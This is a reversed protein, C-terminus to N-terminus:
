HCLKSSSSVAPHVETSCSCTSLKTVLNPMPMTLAYNNSVQKKISTKRCKNHAETYYSLFVIGPWRLCEYNYTFQHGRAAYLSVTLSLARRRDCRAAVASLRSAGGGGIKPRRAVSTGNILMNKEGYGRTFWKKRLNVFVSNKQSFGLCSVFRSHATSTTHIQLTTFGLLGCQIKLMKNSVFDNLWSKHSHKNDMTSLRNILRCSTSRQM